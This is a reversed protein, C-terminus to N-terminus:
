FLDRIEEYKLGCIRALQKTSSNYRSKMKRCLSVRQEVSLSRSSVNGFMHQILERKYQLLENDPLSLRSVLGERSDIDNESSMCIFYHYAKHTKFVAEVMEVDVYESPEIIDGILRANYTLTGKRLLERQTIYSLDCVKTLNEQNRVIPSTWEGKSRFYLAGSSWPYDYYTYPLGAVPPNKVVYCIANKLYRQDSITQYHIPVQSMHRQHGHRNSIYISTRRVYEHMFRNCEDLKGYLIFHLHNDMLCFALIACEYNQLVIFIRNMGVVFDMRDFFIGDISNGDTSFHWCNRVHIEQGKIFRSNLGLDEAMTKRDLM